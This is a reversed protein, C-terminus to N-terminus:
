KLALELSSRLAEPQPVSMMISYGDRTPVYVVRTPDTIFVLSKEGNRLKFWGSAYGPLGAGNTRWKLQYPKERRLNIVRADEVVLSSAPINRGYVDGRIRLGESTVEFTVNRSSYAFYAFLAILAVLFITLGWFLYIPGNSGQVIPFIEKM